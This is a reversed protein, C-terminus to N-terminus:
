KETSGSVMSKITEDKTQSSKSSGYFFAIVTTMAGGLIGIITFVMNEKDKPIDGTLVLTILGFAALIILAALYYPFRRVFSDANKIGETNMARASAIDSLYNEDARVALEEMRATHENVIKQLETKAVIVEEKNTIVKDLIESAGKLIEGAGLSFIKAFLGPM